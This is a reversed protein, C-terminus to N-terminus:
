RRRSGLLLGLGLLASLSTGPEPVPVTTQFASAAGGEWVSSDVVNSSILPDLLIESDPPPPSASSFSFRWEENTVTNFFTSESVTPGNYFRIGFQLRQESTGPLDAADDLEVTEDFVGDAGLQITISDIAVFNDFRDGDTTPGDIIGPTTLEFYGIKVLDGTTLTAGTEDLLNNSFGAFTNQTVIRLSAGQSALTTVASILLTYKM